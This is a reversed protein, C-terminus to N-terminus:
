ADPRSAAQAGLKLMLTAILATPLLGLVFFVWEGLWSQAYQFLSSSYFASPMLLVWAATVIAAIVSAVRIAVSRGRFLFVSAIVIATFVGFPYLVLAFSSAHAASPLLILLWLALTLPKAKM